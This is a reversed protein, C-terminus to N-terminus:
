DPSSQYNTTRLYVVVDRRESKFVLKRPRVRNPGQPLRLTYTQWTEDAKLDLATLPQLAQGTKEFIDLRVRPEGAPYDAKFELSLLGAPYSPVLLYFDGDDIRTLANFEFLYNGDSDGYLYKLEPALAAAQRLFTTPNFGPKLASIFVIYRLGAIKGLTKLSLRDPFLWTDAPLRLMLHSRQGSYGNVLPRALPFAWNMFITNNIAFDRWSKVQGNPALATTWPLVVVAQNRNHQTALYEFVLPAPKQTELPLLQNTNELLAGLLVILLAAPTWSKQAQFFTLVISLVVSLCFLAFVGIRSIARVCDFGPLIKYFLMFPAFALHGKEPNGQPGLSLTFFLLAAFLFAGILGRNTMIHFGVERELRGLRYLLRIFAALSCWLGLACLYNPWPGSSVEHLFSLSFFSSLLFCAAFLLSAKFLKRADSFRLYAMVTLALVLVGPFLHAEEFSLGATFRYLLNIPPASLYSAATASFYHAEYIARRGFTARVDLYPAIFLLLPAIGTLLGGALSLTSKITFRGPKLIFSASLIAFFLLVMFIAYYVTCLFCATLTLGSMFAPRFSPRALWHFLFSLGLPAWFIFQLQPQGLKAGLSSLNMLIAGSVLAALHNGCLRFCLRYTFYGNLFIVSLLMLNWALVHSVGASTVPWLVLSPLIFNDSWALTRTYPYFAMTNFWPQTFLDRANSKTLWLYLGADGQSGGIYLSNIGALAPLRFVVLILLLWLVATLEQAPKARHLLLFDKAPQPGQFPPQSKTQHAKPM